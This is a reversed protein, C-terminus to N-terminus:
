AADNLLVYHIHDEWVGNIKLYKHALGEEVFGLKEVVRCSRINRPMINAEIRHLRLEGFAYGIAARVAETMFGHNLQHADMKYGLHCSLFAGYIINNLALDGIVTQYTTDARKFLHLRLMWGDQMLALENRLRQEQHALSFYEEGTAPNWEKFFARNRVLYALVQSAHAPGLVKLTLRETHLELDENL